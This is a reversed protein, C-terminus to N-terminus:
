AHQKFVNDIAAAMYRRLGIFSFSYPASTVHHRRFAADWQWETWWVNWMFNIRIFGSRQHSVGGAVHCPATLIVLTGCCLIGEVGSSELKVLHLLVFFRSAPCVIVVKHISPLGTWSTTIFKWYLSRFCTKAKTVLVNCASLVRSPMLTHMYAAIGLGYLCALGMARPFCVNDSTASSQLGNYEAYRRVRACSLQKEM